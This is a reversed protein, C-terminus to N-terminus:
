EGDWYGVAQARVVVGGGLNLKGSRPYHCLDGIARTGYALYTLGEPGARLLHEVGSGPPRGVLSGPTLPFREEGLEVEGAGALVVFLEEEATHWHAPCSAKGPALIAHRLGSLKSGAARGLDTDLGAYSGHAYPEAEVEALSVITSPREALPAPAPLELPGAALELKFPNPGDHPLWRPGMWWAQARPLWTMRTPSGSAFVLVEIGEEGAILTHAEANAPHVILDGTHVRHTSGNQWSLGSGATVYFLEEEDAHVHVPMAREGPDQKYASCGIALPAFEPALRRREGQLDGHDIVERRADGIHGINAHGDM